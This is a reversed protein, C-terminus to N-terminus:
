FVGGGRRFWCNLKSRHKISKIKTVKSGPYYKPFNSKLQTIFRSNILIVIEIITQYQAPNKYNNLSYGSRLSTSTVGNRRVSTQQKLWVQQTSVVGKRLKSSYDKSSYDVVAQLIEWKFSYQWPLQGARVDRLSKM